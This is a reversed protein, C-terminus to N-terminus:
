GSAPGSGGRQERLFRELDDVLDRAPPLPTADEEFAEAEASPPEEPEGLDVMRGLRDAVEPNDRLAGEVKRLFDTAIGQLRGLELSTDLVREAAELLALSVAPNPQGLYPPAAAWLSLAPVGASDLAHLLATVFATPGSYPTDDLGLQALRADLVENPTRRAVPTRRHSVPGIFAGFTVALEVDLDAAFEAVSSSLTPWSTHPEPGRVLLLDREADPRLIPYLGIEPYDLSWRGDAGRRTIPRQVTFDFCLEPDLTACAAPPPDGLLYALAGTGATGVDGWGGFAALLIPRRLAPREVLRLATM